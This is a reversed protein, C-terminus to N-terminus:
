QTKSDPWSDQGKNNSFAYAPPLCPSLCTGLSIHLCCSHCGYCVFISPLGASLHSLTNIWVGYCKRQPDTHTQVKWPSSPLSRDAVRYIDTSRFLGLKSLRIGDGAVWKTETQTSNIKKERRVKGTKWIRCEEVSKNNDKVEAEGNGAPFYCM